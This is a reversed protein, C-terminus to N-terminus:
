ERRLADNLISLYQRRRERELSLIESASWPYYVAPGEVERLRQAAQVKMEQFFFATTDFPTGFAHGCDPCTLDLEIEVGPARRGMEIIVEAREAENLASGGDSL